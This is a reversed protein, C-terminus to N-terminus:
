VEGGKEPKEQETMKDLVEEKNMKEIRHYNNEKLMADFTCVSRFPCRGCAIRQKDRYAPNLDIKGSYLKEGASRFKKENHQILKKMEAESVFQKSKMEGKATQNFPYILSKAKPEITQDLNELLQDNQLLLGNYGFEELFADKQQEQAVEGDILPNKVHLYFAGAPYAQKGVLKVANQLAVDLYTVMQMALGYYADRFDFKHASSKYDVVALYIEEDLRTQDLRDIKGRVSLKKGNRLSFDLSDLSQQQAFQGFLVETKITNMGTRGSQIKLAWSVRQITKTLQYRIYNMRNSANLIAFKTEGLMQQLISETVVQVEEQSLESLSWGERILVKFLQDLAEHFFEGTAAPSLGFLEREKLQLGYTVFYQYECQYFSEIKSVSAFITDGYLAEVINEQLDEPVNKAQLSQALQQVRKAYFPEKLLHQELALWFAPVEQKEETAQRKIHTLDTLLMEKTSIYDLFNTSRIPPESAKRQIPLHLEKSIRMIYPSLTSDKTWDSTTPYTIYLKETASLLALYAVYPEKALSKGTHQFLFQEENLQRDVFEREDDTLLTKNELKAPLTQDTAGLLFTIKPKKAHILDVPSISVQDLTAPVKGYNMGDLGATFIEIFDTFEFPAEGMIYVFEDLLNVFAQWVQEHVKAEELAGKELAQDRWFRLQREIGNDVFFQYLITAAEKGDKSHALKKFFPVLAEKVDHRTKNSLTEIVTNKDQNITDNEFDYTIYKWDKEQTWYFGEYGYALLVNETRDVQDRYTNKLRYWDALPTEENINPIFLETRLFRMVDTYRYNRQYIAFLSQVCELLPHQKLMLEQNLEYPIENRRLIPLLVGRYHEIDRTIIEIDRYRYAEEVVLRRIERAIAGVEGYTSTAQWIQISGNMAHNEHYNQMNQTQCWYNDLATFDPLINSNDTIKTDYLVPVKQAKAFHYLQFYLSKADYFLDYSNPEQQITGEDMILNIKVAGSHEILVKVLELEVATFKSFGSIVFLVQSVDQERLYDALQQLVESSELELNATEECYAAYLLEFDALKKRLDEEKATTGLEAIMEQLDAIRIRGQELEGFLDALQQIFGQKQIEGKFLVLETQKRQLIKRIVMHKSAESIVQKPYHATHQLYYWAFRSFSFIQLNTAVVPQDASIAAQQKVLELIHIETEFKVHNPVLYFVQNGERKALWELSKEVLTQEPQQSAKNLVFELSM